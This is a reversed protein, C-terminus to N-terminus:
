KQNLVTCQQTLTFGANTSAEQVSCEYPILEMAVGRKKDYKRHLYCQLYYRTTSIM